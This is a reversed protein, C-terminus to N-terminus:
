AQEYEAVLSAGIIGAKNKYKAKKVKMADLSNIKEEYSKTLKGLLDDRSDMLGGGIILIEPDFFNKLTVLFYGVDDVFKEYAEVKDTTDLLFIEESRLYDGSIEQYTNSLGTGSIYREACGRQGCICERGGPYLIIHGLEGARYSPGRYIENDNYLFGGVGTGLTMVIGNTYNTGSGLKMECLGAANADNEVYIPIQDFINTFYGKIDTNKWNDINGGITLVKGKKTDVTGPTVIGIARTTPEILDSILQRVCELVQDKKKPTSITKEKIIKGDVVLGAKLSTGGIDVGIYEGM